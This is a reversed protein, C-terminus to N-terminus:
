LRVCVGHRLVEGELRGMLEERSLSHPIFELARTLIGKMEAVVGVLLCEDEISAGATILYQDQPQRLFKYGVDRLEQLARDGRHIDVDLGAAETLVSLLWSWHHWVSVPCITAPPHYSLDSIEIVGGPQLCRFAAHLTVGWTKIAGNMGRMHVFNFRDDWAWWPTNADDIYFFAMDPTSDPQIAAVDTGFVKAEPHADCLDRDWTLSLSGPSSPPRTCCGTGREQASM